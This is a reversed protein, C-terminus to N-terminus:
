KRNWGAPLPECSHSRRSKSKDEILSQHRPNAPTLPLIESRCNWHCPPTETKLLPDDKAYVLGGRGRGRAHPRKGNFCWATTAQDRVAIFLYHTVDKSEDYINRRTQNWYRTTETEIITKNRSYEGKTAKNIKDILQQQDFADGSRFQESNKIYVEQCKKVYAKKVSEIIKKQRPPVVGKKRWLDWLKMLAGLSRPMPGKPYAGMRVPPLFEPPGNTTRVADFIVAFAHEVILKELPIVSDKVKGTEALEEQTNRIMENWLYTLKSRWVSELDHTRNALLVINIADKTGVLKVLEKVTHPNIPM